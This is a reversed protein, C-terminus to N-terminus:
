ASDRPDDQSSQESPNAQEDMVQEDIFQEIMQSLGQVTRGAESVQAELEAALLNAAQLRNLTQELIDRTQYRFEEPNM